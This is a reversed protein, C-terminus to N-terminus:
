PSITRGVRFGVGGNHYRTGYPHANIRGAVPFANASYSGGRIIGGGNCGKMWSSGDTPAGEYNPHWCDQVWEWVNGIIDYLGFANAPYKGVEVTGQRHHANAKTGDFRDGWPYTSRSGARAVYEWEAETLLRYRRGTRKTLWEVYEEAEDRTLGEVPFGAGKSMRPREYSIAATADPQKCSKESVCGEWEAYTVEFKGVAFAHSITIRRAPITTGWHDDSVTGMVFSGAPVLVLEPCEACDRFSQGSGSKVAMVPDRRAAEEAKRTTEADAHQRDQEAKMAAFRQREAEDAQGKAEADAAAKDRAEEDAKRRAESDARLKAAETQAAKRDEEAKAAAVRLRELEAARTDVLPAAFWLLPVGSYYAGAYAAALGSVGGVLLLALSRAKQSRPRAASRRIFRIAEILAAINQGFNEHTVGHKQHLVLERIDEPLLDGRPLAAGEILVPIVTVGRKLAGAIEEHVYDREGSAQRQQYLDLWRPGMVVLFIDTEALAKELERDFRQGAMLNDVDMFVNPAGFEAALRDRVRAAASREDDRRYNIFIKGPM